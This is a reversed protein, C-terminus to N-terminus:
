EQERVGPTSERQDADELDTKVIFTDSHERAAERLAGLSPVDDGDIEDGARSLERNIEQEAQQWHHLDRGHPRGESEWLAHARARIKLERGEPSLGKASKATPKDAKATQKSGRAARKVPTSSADARTTKKAGTKSGSPTRGAM